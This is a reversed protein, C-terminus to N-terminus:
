VRELEILESSLRDSEMSRYGLKKSNKAYLCCRRFLLLIPVTISIAILLTHDGLWEFFRNDWNRWTGGMTQSFFVSPQAEPRDSMLIRDLPKFGAGLEIYDRFTGDSRLLYHYKEWMATVFWQGSAYTIALYPFPYNWNYSELNDTLLHYFPHAPQGGM